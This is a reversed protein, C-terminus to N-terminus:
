RATSSRPRPSRGTRRTSSRRVGHVRALPRQGRADERRRGRLGLLRGRGERRQQHAGHHPRDQRRGRRRLPGDQRRAHLARPPRHGQHGDRVDRRVHVPGRLRAGRPPHALAGGDHRPGDRGRARRHREPHPRADRPRGPDHHARGIDIAKMGRVLGDAPKMSICRVRNEGLHQAVETIIDIPVTSLKEDDVIRVANLITPLKGAPFEVDM